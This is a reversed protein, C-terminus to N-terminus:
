DKKMSKMTDSISNDVSEPVCLHEGPKLRYENGEKDFQISEVHTCGYKKHWWARVYDIQYRLFPVVVLLFMMIEEHCFPLFGHNHM